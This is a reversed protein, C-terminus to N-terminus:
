ARKTAPVPTPTRVARPRPRLAGLVTAGIAYGAGAGLAVLGAFAMFGKLADM